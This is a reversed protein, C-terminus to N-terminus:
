GEGRRAGAHLRGGPLDPFRQRLPREPLGNGGRLREPLRGGGLLKKAKEPDAKERKFDGSLAFLSPAIMLASPTAQKRMVRQEIVNEDIALFFAERVRKDKFPNKGKVSSELLEDRVQDMGLFITRLEPGTMVSVNPASNVREIDQLPVPEIQDVEGSLLAAVRTSDNSITTFVAEDLNSEVKGWYNPNRKFVTKVGPQHSEITFPGTGNEHLSAYSPNTASAPTPKVADHEECWKKSMIYWGDFQYNLIPNPTPTIFDVTYDDIKVVKAEAPVNTQFNSGTARVRDASFVVDDATFDSGDHFKVGHRLHFRWRTPEPTEWSEALGPVIKLNKDRATLGEYVAGHAAITFTEKLTYPDLSKIDGQFAYRFTVASAPQVATAAALAALGWLASAIRMSVSGRIKRIGAMESFREWGSASIQCSRPLHDLGEAIGLGRCM